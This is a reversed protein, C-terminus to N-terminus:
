VFIFKSDMVNVELFQTDLNLGMEKLAYSRWNVIPDVYTTGLTTAQNQADAIARRMLFVIQVPLAVQYQIGMKMDQPRNANFGALTNGSNWAWMGIDASTFGYQELLTRDDASLSTWEPWESKPMVTLAWKWNNDYIMTGFTCSNRKVCDGLALFAFGNVDVIDGGKWNESLTKFPEIANEKWNQPVAAVWKVKGLLHKDFGVNAMQQQQEQTLANWQPDDIVPIEIVAPPANPPSPPPFSWGPPPFQQQMNVYDPHQDWGLYTVYAQPIPFIKSSELSEFNKYTTPKTWQGSRILDQRRRGEMFMEKSKEKFFDKETLTTYLPMGVRARIMNVSELTEPDNWDNSLRAKAEAKIFYAEALRYVVSKYDMDASSTTNSVRPKALRYGAFRHANPWIENLELTYNVISPVKPVGPNPFPATAADTAPTGDWKYQVGRHFDNLRPDNSEYTRVLDPNAMYGNCGTGCWNVDTGWANPFYYHGSMALINVGGNGANVWETFKAGTWFNQGEVKEAEPIGSWGQPLHMIIEPNDYNHSSFVADYGSTTLPDNWVAPNRRGYNPQQVTEDSLKYMNKNILLGAANYADQWRDTGTIVGANIYMQALAALVSGVTFDYKEDKTDLLLANPQVRCLQCTASPLQKVGLADLFTKEASEFLEKRTMKVRTHEQPGKSVDEVVHIHPFMDAATFYAHARKLKAQFKGHESVHSSAIMNDASSIKSMIQNLTNKLFVHTPPFHHTHMMLLIGGDFWDGGRTPVILEGSSLTNVTWLGSHEWQMYKMMQNLAYKELNRIGNHKGMIMWTLDQTSSRGLSDTAKLTNTFSGLDDVAWNNTLWTATSNPEDVATALLHTPFEFASQGLMGFPWMGDLSGEWSFEYGAKAVPISFPIGEPNDCCHSLKYANEVDTCHLQTGGETLAVKSTSDSCCSSASYTNQAPSCTQFNIGTVLPSLLMTNNKRIFFFITRRTSNKRKETHNVLFFEKCLCLPAFFFDM